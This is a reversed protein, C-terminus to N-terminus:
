PLLRTRDRPFLSAERINKLNLLQCTLRELGIALGGHPPMGYKFVELYNEFNNPNLDKYIINQKLMNYNNIRQGGTTIELGRFLLDFSRTFLENHSSIRLINKHELLVHYWVCDM